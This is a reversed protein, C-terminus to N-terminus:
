HFRKSLCSDGRVEKVTCTKEVIIDLEMGASPTSGVSFHLFLQLITSVRIFYKVVSMIKIQMRKKKKLFLNVLM